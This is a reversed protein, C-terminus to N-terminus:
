STTRTICREAQPVQISFCWVKCTGTVLLPYQTNSPWGIAGSNGTRTLIAFRPNPIWMRAFLDTFRQQSMFLPDIAEAPFRIMVIWITTTNGWSARITINSYPIHHKSMTISYQWTMRSANCCNSPSTAAYYESWWLITGNFHPSCAITNQASCHSSMCMPYVIQRQVCVVHQTGTREMRDDIFQLFKWHGSITPTVLQESEDNM